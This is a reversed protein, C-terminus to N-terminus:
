VIRGNANTFIVTVRDFQVEIETQKDRTKYIVIEKM